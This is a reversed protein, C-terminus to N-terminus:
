AEKKQNLKQLIRRHEKELKKFKPLWGAYYNIEEEARDVGHRRFTHLIFLLAHLVLQFEYYEASASVKKKKINRYENIFHEVKKIIEQEKADM